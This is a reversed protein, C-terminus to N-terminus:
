RQEGFLAAIRSRHKWLTGLVIPIAVINTAGILYPRVVRWLDRFADLAQALSQGSLLKIAIFAIVVVVLVLFPLLALPIIRMLTQALKQKASAQEKKKTLEQQKQIEATSLPESPPIDGDLIRVIGNSGDVEVMQGDKLMETAGFLGSVCPLGYERAVVAGHQLAGGIELIIGGANIFLPTWGPDTARTVLIEGPLLPKEDASHLVKVKGTVVGASIPTGSLEGAQMAKRPPYFIKGRSDLVRAVLHNRKIQNILVTREAAIARLDLAADALAADALAADIDAITLDFIQDRHDLRAAQVFTDAVQLARKRFLDIVKIVYHKPTERYAGLTMWTKYLKELSRAQHKGKQLALKHLADYAAERKRRAGEFISATGPSRDPAAALSKLQEFLLAPYEGPRPTAVDIERPCRAGYEAVFADWQQLFEPALTRQELHRLFTETSTHAKLTDSTALDFLLAGMESTKNGPLATGLSLLQASVEDLNDEFLKKIRAQAIQSAFVMPMGYEYFFFHLLATLNAAQQHLSLNSDLVDEFRQLQKLLASQYRQLFAEPKRLATVVPLMLPLLKFPGKLTSLTQVLSRKAPLYQELDINDLTRLVSEDGASGPALGGFPGQMQLSQSLNMYYRGGATFAGGEVSDASGGMPGTMTNLVYRMFDTGLVSLPAQVGQEILTSDAYLRKPAGPATIMEPPLPLYTTIPRAQLLYLKEHSMAWEIDMPKGYHGEVQTVLDTLALVQAPSLCPQQARPRSTQTTGGDVNLTIIVKKSGVQSELITRTVKDVVFVDPEVEGAVVSEGLGDNANIVAEDYCNNLPNLSFAVGASDADVQQQVIVAIRPQAISFGHEKKYLFVRADFGSAFSHLIAAKLTETTVGLTTEYGGAFSAGEMDEEPSSSRVAFLQAGSIAQFVKLESYLDMEQQPTFRLDRCLAQLAQTAPVLDKEGASQVANWEPTAQLTAVWPAFFDVTLVFGPPVPMGAQAMTMLALAKGGVQALQPLESSTCPIITRNIKTEM